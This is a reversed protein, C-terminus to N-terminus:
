GLLAEALTVGSLYAGEVRPGNCWDGVAGLKLREDWLFDHPLPNIPTAHRWRHAALFAPMVERGLLATFAKVLRAAAESPELELHRTSWQPSGHLVWREAVGPVALRQPKSSDRAIWSLIANDNLFAGDFSAGAPRALALMAAWCPAWQVSAMKRTLASHEHALEAALPSPVALVVADFGRMSLEQAAADHLYWREGRREIRAVRRQLEVSLNTAMHRGISDMGGRGVFHAGSLTKDWSRGQDLALLRGPWRVAVGAAEWGQVTREFRHNQLTFYQAGHDFVGAPTARTAARGGPVRGKDYVFVQAGRSALESACALGSIGAGIIAVRLAARTTM